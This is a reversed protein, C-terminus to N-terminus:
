SDDAEFKGAVDENVDCKAPPSIADSNLVHKPQGGISKEADPPGIVNPINCAPLVIPDPVRNLVPQISLQCTVM